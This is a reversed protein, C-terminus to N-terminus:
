RRLPRYLEDAARAHKNFMLVNGVNSLEHQEPPLKASSCYPNSQLQTMFQVMKM